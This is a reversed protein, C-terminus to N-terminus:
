LSEMPLQVLSCLSCRVCFFVCLVEDHLNERAFSISEGGLYRRVVGITAIIVSYGIAVLVCCFRKNKVNIESDAPL